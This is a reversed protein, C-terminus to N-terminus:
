RSTVGIPQEFTFLVKPFDTIVPIFYGSLSRFAILCLSLSTVTYLLTWFSDFLRHQHTSTGIEAM